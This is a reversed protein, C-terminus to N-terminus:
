SMLMFAVCVANAEAQVWPGKYITWLSYSTVHNDYPCLATQPAILRTMQEQPVLLEDKVTKVFQKHSFVCLFYFWKNHM